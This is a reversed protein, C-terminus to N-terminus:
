IIPSTTSLQQNKTMEELEKLLKQRDKLNMKKFDKIIEDMLEQGKLSNLFEQRKRINRM